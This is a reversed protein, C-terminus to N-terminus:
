KGDTNGATLFGAGVTVQRRVMGVPQGSVLVKAHVNYSGAPLRDLSLHATAVLRRESNTALPRVRATRRAIGDLGRLDFEVELQEPRVLGSDYLELLAALTSSGPQFEVQPRFRQGEDTGVLLDSFQVLDTDRLGVELPHEVSGRRGAADIVAFRLTYRGPPLACATVLIVSDSTGGSGSPLGHDLADAVVRGQDLVEYGWTLDVAAAPSLALEAAIIAKLRRADTGRFTYSTVRMPLETAARPQRLTYGIARRPSSWADVRRSMVVQEPTRVTLGPRKVRVKIDLAKTPPTGADPEIGLVYLGTTERMIRDFIGPSQGVSRFMVGGTLGTLTGLGRLGSDVDGMFAASAAGESTDFAFSDVHVAYLAFRAEAAKRAVERFRDLSGSEYGLGGSFYVVTKPGDIGALSDALGSLATLSMQLHERGEDLVIRAEQELQDPCSADTRHFCEREIVDNMVLQNRIEFGQAETFSVRRTRFRSQRRGSINALGREVTARDRTFEIRQGPQPITVLAVRDAPGLAELLGGAARLLGKGAGSPLSEHDVALILLRGNAASSNTTFDRTQALSGGAASDFPRSELSLFRSTVVPRVRGDIRVEFDESALDHVPTGDKTVVTVDLRVLDVGTRFTPGTPQSGPKEQWARAGGTALWVAILTMFIRRMNAM